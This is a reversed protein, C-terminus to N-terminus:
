VVEKKQYFGLENKVFGFKKYVEEDNMKKVNQIMLLLRPKEVKVCTDRSVVFFEHTDCGYVNICIEIITGEDLYVKQEDSNIWDFKKVSIYEKNGYMKTEIEKVVRWWFRKKFGYTDYRIRVVVKNDKKIEEKNEEM